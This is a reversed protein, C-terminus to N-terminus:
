ASKHPTLLQGATIPFGRLFTDRDMAARGPRQIQELRLANNGCAITLQDDLVTGPIANPDEQPILRAALLKVREGKIWTYAGPFPYLGRVKRALIAADQSWDIEAEAKDIKHAYSIGTEPQAAANITGLAVKELVEVMMPGGMSALRDHLSLTTDDDNIPTRKMLLVPGTDLGEDMQMISIGTETDGAMIARHIPAAGRWRPLLSAHVNFCGLRPADLIDKSLIQGYAVVVAADLDLARFQEIEAPKKLRKPTFVPLGADEAYAHVPSKRLSHGRGAPRPPQSYVARVDHGAELLAALTPVAFDPTGLFALKLGAM